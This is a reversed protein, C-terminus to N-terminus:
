LQLIGPNNVEIRILPRAADGKNGNHLDITTSPLNHKFIYNPLRCKTVSYLEFDTKPPLEIGLIDGIKVNVSTTQNNFNLTCEYVHSRKCMSDSPLEIAIENVRYFIRGPENENKRWIQLKISQNGSDSDLMMGAVTVNVIAGSCTFKMDPILVTSNIKLDTRNVMRDLDQVQEMSPFGNVCAYPPRRGQDGPPGMGTCFHSLRRWRYGIALGRFLNFM